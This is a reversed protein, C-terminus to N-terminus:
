CFERRVELQAPPAFFLRSIRDTKLTYVGSRRFHGMLLLFKGFCLADSKREKVSDILVIDKLLPVQDRVALIREEYDTKYFFTPGFYCRSETINLSRALEKEEYSMAIPHAVAGVKYCAITLMAFESWIPLQFSVVEGPRIGLWTLYAAVRGPRKMWNGTPTATVVTM